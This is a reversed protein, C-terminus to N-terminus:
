VQGQQYFILSADTYALTTASLARAAENAQKAFEAMKETSEGSVIRINNLSKNLDEAYQYAYQFSSALSHTLGSTIQWKVTNKLTTLFESMAKNVRVVPAEARVIASAVQQFAQRGEPGIKNLTEAYSSLDKGSAKLSASLRSLDLKGTKVDLAKSLHQQLEIAAQSAAKLEEDDFLSTAKGPLKGVEQLAKKLDLIQQQAQKTDASFSLEVSVKRNNNYAM